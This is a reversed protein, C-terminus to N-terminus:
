INPFDSMNCAGPMSNWPFSDLGHGATSLKTEECSNGDILSTYISISHEKSLLSGDNLLSAELSADLTGIDKWSSLHNGTFSTDPYCKTEALIADSSSPSKSAQIESLPCGEIENYTHWVTYGDSESVQNCAFPPLSVEFVGQSKMLDGTGDGKHVIADLGTNQSSISESKLSGPSEILPDAQEIPSGLSALQNETVGYNLNTSCGAKESEHPFQVSSLSGNYDSEICGTSQLRKLPNMADMSLSNPGVLSPSPLDDVDPFHKIITKHDFYNHMLDDIALVDPLFENRRKTGRLEELTGFNMDQDQSVLYEPYIPLGARQHRKLRTNWYNKIENDTRGPLLSAMKAWKNGWALHMRLIKEIEEDDFPGKKLDPRLHNSWRLRCSKGCRNLGANIRVQNWNGEGHAQVYDSLRRDEDPTWPGKKLQPERGRGRGVGDGDGESQTEEDEEYYDDDGDAPSMLEADATPPPLREPAVADEEVKVMM